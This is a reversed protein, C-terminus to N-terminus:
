LGLEKKIIQQATILGVIFGENNVKDEEDSPKYDRAEKKMDEIKDIAERVKKKEIVEGFEFDGHIILIKQDKNAFKSLIEHLEKMRIVPTTGPLKIIFLGKGLKKINQKDICNEQINGKSFREHGDECIYGQGKLSPFQKEFNM